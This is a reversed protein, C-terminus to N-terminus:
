SKTLKMEEFLIVAAEGRTLMRGSAPRNIGLESIFERESVAAPRPEGKRIREVLEM